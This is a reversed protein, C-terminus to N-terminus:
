SPPFRPTLYQRHKYPLDVSCWCLNRPTCEVCVRHGQSQLQPSPYAAQRPSVARHTPSFLQPHAKLRQGESASPLSIAVQPQCRGTLLVHPEKLNQGPSQAAEQPTTAKLPQMASPYPASPLHEQGARSTQQSGQSNSMTTQEHMRGCGGLWQSWQYWRDDRDLRSRRWDTM